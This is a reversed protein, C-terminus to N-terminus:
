LAADLGVHDPVVIGGGLLLRQLRGRLLALTVVELFCRPRVEVRFGLLFRM